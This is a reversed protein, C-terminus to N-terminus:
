RREKKAVLECGCNGFKFKEIVNKVLQDYFQAGGGGGLAKKRTKKRTSKQASCSRAFSEKLDKHNILNENGKKLWM